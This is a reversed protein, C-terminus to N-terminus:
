QGAETTYPALADRAIQLQEWFAEGRHKPDCLGRLAEVLARERATLPAETSVAKADEADMEAVCELCAVLRGHCCTYNSM